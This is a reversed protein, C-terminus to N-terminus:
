RAVYFIEKGAVIGAPSMGVLRNYMRAARLEIPTRGIILRAGHNEFMQWIAEKGCKVGYKGRGEPLIFSHADFRGSDRNHFFFGVKEGDSLAVGQDIIEWIDLYGFGGIYPRVQEHNILSNLFSLNKCLSIM